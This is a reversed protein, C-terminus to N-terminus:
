GCKVVRDGDRRKCRSRQKGRQEALWYFCGCQGRRTITAKGIVPRPVPLPIARTPRSAPCFPMGAPMFPTSYAWEYPHWPMRPRMSLLPLLAHGPPGANTLIYARPPLHSSSSLSTAGPRLHTAPMKSGSKLPNAPRHLAISFIAGRNPSSTIRTNRCAGLSSKSKNSSVSCMLRLPPGRIEILM